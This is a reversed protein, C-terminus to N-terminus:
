IANSVPHVHIQALEPLQHHVRFVPMDMPRLSDIHSLSQVSSIFILSLRFWTSFWCCKVSLLSGWTSCRSSIWYWIIKGPPPPPLSGVQWHLLCLLCPNLGQTLFIGQLDVWELIRAQLIGHVSSGPLICAIPDCITPCSQLLKAYMWAGLVLVLNNM